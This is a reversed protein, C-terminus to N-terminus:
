TTFRIRFGSPETSFLMDGVTTRCTMLSSVELCTQSMRSLTTPAGPPVPLFALTAPYRTAPFVAVESFTPWAESSYM